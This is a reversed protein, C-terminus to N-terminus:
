LVAYLIPCQCKTDCVRNKDRWPKKIYGDHRNRKWCELSRFWGVGDLLFFRFPEPGRGLAMGSREEFAAAAPPLLPSFLYFLYMFFGQGKSRSIPLLAIKRIYDSAFDCHCRRESNAFSVTILCNALKFYLPLFHEGMHGLLVLCQLAKFIDQRVLLGVPAQHFFDCYFNRLSKTIPADIRWCYLLSREVSTGGTLSRINDIFLHITKIIARVFFPM